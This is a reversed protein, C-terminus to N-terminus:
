AGSDVPRHDRRHARVSRPTAFATFKPVWVALGAAALFATGGITVIGLALTAAGAVISVIVPGLGTGGDSFVRWIGLFRRRGDIPAADAGITQIIGSGIGNGFSMAMAVLTLDAFTHTHVLTIMAVGMIIMAPLAIALRGWRDMVRGSPYFLAADVANAIGFMLSTQTPSLGIHLAWLPLVTQRSQRVASVAAVTFGLTLFMRGRARLITLGRVGKAGSPQAQGHREVDRVVFLLVATAIATAMAVLYAAQVGGVSIAAAGLFPGIFLGIRHSGALTLQARARLWVPVVEILYSQRALYFTSSTIGLITVAVDLEILSRSVMCAFFALFAICAAGMMSRRDGFREAIWSAPIDGILKGLGLLALTFAAEETAAGLHTATTVLVPMIAGNGIEYMMAPLYSSAAYSWISAHSTM